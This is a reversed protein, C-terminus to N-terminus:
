LKYVDSITAVLMVGVLLVVGIRMAIGQWQTPVQRRFLGEICLFVVQGGDLVPIPLLNLVGLSISMYAAFTLFAIVGVGASEGAVKVIGIPGSINGIAIDGVVLKYLSILVLRSLMLTEDVARAMSEFLNPQYHLFMDEPLQIKQPSVGAFGITVGRVERSAPLLSLDVLSNHREVVIDVVSAPSHRIIAVVDRWDEIEKGNMAIIRDEIQIGAQEAASGEQVQAIIAPIMPQFPQIGLALLPDPDIAQDLWNSIHLQYHRERNEADLTQISIVGTEGVREILQLAVQKWSAVAEEDVAILTEGSTMGAIFAPTARHVEGLVPKQITVGGLNIAAFVFFALVFNAVPGALVIILRQWVAKSSYAKDADEDSFGESMDDEGLMRVFGGLPIASLSYETGRADTWSLLSRGFGISFRIVHVGCARAALFHGLEHWGILVALCLVAFFISLLSM